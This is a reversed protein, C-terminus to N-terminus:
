LSLVAGAIQRLAPIKDDSLAYVLSLMEAKEPSIEQGDMELLFDTSVKFHQAFMIVYKSNPSSGKRWATPKSTSIGLEKCVATINTNNAKCLSELVDIFM